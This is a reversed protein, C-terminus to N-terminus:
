GPAARYLRCVSYDGAPRMRLRVYAALRSPELRGGTDPDLCVQRVRGARIEEIVEEEGGRGMSTALPIDFPTPDPLDTVLYLFGARPSLFFVPGGEAAAERLRASAAFLSDEESPTLRAPALHPLGSSVYGPGALRPVATGTWFLVTLSALGAAAFAAPIAPRSGTGSAVPVLAALVAPLGCVLHTRDAQPFLNLLAAGLAALVLLCRRREAATRARWARWALGALALPPLLSALGWVVRGLAGGGAGTVGPLSALDAFYDFSGSGVYGGKGLFGYEVLRPLGGSLAVPLLPALAASSFALALGLWARASRRGPGSALAAAPVALALLGLNQKSAFALGAAAASALLWDRRETAAHTLALSLAALLLLVALQNYPSFAIPPALAGLALLLVAQGRVGAGLQAALRLCTLCTLAFLGALVAELTGVTVGGARAALVTVQVALPTAGYFVDRYLAQGAAVRRV